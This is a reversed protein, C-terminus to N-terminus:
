RLKLHIYEEHPSITPTSVIIFALKKVSLVLVIEYGTESQSWLLHVHLSSAPQWFNLFSHLSTNQTAASCPTQASDSKTHQPQEERLHSIRLLM